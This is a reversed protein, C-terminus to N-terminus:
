LQKFIDTSVNFNITLIDNNIDLEQVFINGNFIDKKFNIGKKLKKNIKREIKDIAIGKFLNYGAKLFVNKFFSAEHSIKGKEIIKIKIQNESLIAQGRFKALNVYENKIKFTIKNISIIFSNKEFDINFDDKLFNIVNIKKKSLKYLKHNIFYFFVERLSEKTIQFSSNNIKINYKQKEEENLLTNDIINIDNENENMHNFYKITKIKHIILLIGYIIFYIGIFLLYIVELHPFYDLNNKRELSFPKYFIYSSLITILGSIIDFIIFQCFGFILSIFYLIFYFSFIIKFGTPNIDKHFIKNLLTNFETYFETTVIFYPFIIFLSLFLKTYLNMKYM